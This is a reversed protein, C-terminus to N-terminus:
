CVNLKTSFWNFFLVASGVQQDLPTLLDALALGAVDHGAGDSAAPVTLHDGHGRGGLGSGGLLLLGGRGGLLLLFEVGVHCGEATGEDHGDDAGEEDTHAIAHGRGEQGSEHEGTGSPVLNDPTDSVGEVSGEHGDSVGNGTGGSNSTEDKKGLSVAEDDPDEGHERGGDREHINNATEDDRLAHKAEEFTFAIDVIGVVGEDGTHHQAGELEDELFQGRGDFDNAGEQADHGDAAEGLHGGGVGTATETHGTDGGGDDGGEDGGIGEDNGEDEGSNASSTAPKDTGVDLGHGKGLGHGSEMRKDAGGGHKGGDAVRQVVGLETEGHAVDEGHETAEDATDGEGTGEDGVAFQVGREEAHLNRGAGQVEGALVEEIQSAEGEEDGEDVQEAGRVGGARLGHVEPDGGDEGRDHTDMKDARDATAVHGHADGHEIGVGAPGKNSLTEHHLGDDKGNDAGEDSEGSSDERVDHALGHVTIDEVDNEAAHVGNGGGLLTIVGGLFV